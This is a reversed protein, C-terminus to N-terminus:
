GRPVGVTSSALDPRIEGVSMSVEDPKLFHAIKADDAFLFAVGHFLSNLASSIQMPFPLLCFIDGQIVVSAVTKPDFTIDDTSIVQSRQNPYSSIRSLLYIIGIYSFKSILYSHLLRDSSVDTDLFIVTSTLSSLSVPLYCRSQVIGQHKSSLHKSALFCDM